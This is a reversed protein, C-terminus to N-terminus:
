SYYRDTDILNNNRLSLLGRHKQKSHVCSCWWVLVEMYRGILQTYRLIFREIRWDMYYLIWWDNNVFGGLYRVMTKRESISSHHFPLCALKLYQHNHRTPEFGMELVMIKNLLRFGRKKKSWIWHVMWPDDRYMSTM